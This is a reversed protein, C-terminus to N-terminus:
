SVIVPFVAIGGPLLVKAGYVMLSKVSQGFRKEPTFIDLERVGYAFACAQNVGAIINTYNGTKPLNNSMFVSMGNIMPVQGSTLVNTSLTVRSDKQLLGKFASSVVVYRGIEPVDAEDLKQGLQVIYDYAASSESVSASAVLNSSSVGTFLAAGLYTDIGKALSFAGKDIVETLLQSDLVSQGAIVRDINVNFYQYQDIVLDLSTSGLASGSIDEEPVYAQSTPITINNIKVTKANAADGQWDTNVLNGFVLNTKFQQMLRQSYVTSILSTNAM